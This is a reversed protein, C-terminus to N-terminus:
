AGVSASWRPTPSPSAPRRPPTGLDSWDIVSAAAPLALAVVRTCTTCRYDYQRGLKGWEPLPWSKTPRRFSQRADVRPRLLLVLWRHPPDPGAGADRRALLGRVDSRAATACRVVGLELVDAENPLRARAATRAVLHVDNRRPQTGVQGGRRRERRDDTEPRHAEAYRIVCSMTVRSRESNAYGSRAEEAGDVGAIFDFLTRPQEYVKRANAQSHHKCSPSFHAMRVAPLRAIDYDLLDVHFHDVQPHHRCSHRHRDRRPQCRLAPRRRGPCRGGFGRRWRLLLGSRHTHRRSPVNPVPGKPVAPAAAHHALRHPQPVPLHPAVGGAHPPRPRRQCKFWHGCRCYGVITIENRREVDLDELGLEPPTTRSHRGSPSTASRTPRHLARLRPRPPRHLHHGAAPGPPREHSAGSTLPWSSCRPGRRHPDVPALSPRHGRRRRRRRLDHLRREPRDPCHEGIVLVDGVSMSPCLQGDPRDDRNHSVFVREAAAFVDLSEDLIVTGAWGAILVDGPQDGRLFPASGNTFNRYSM